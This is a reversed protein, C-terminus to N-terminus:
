PRCNFTLVCYLLVSSAWDNLHFACFHSPIYVCIYIETSSAPDESWSNLSLPRRLNFFYGIACDRRQQSSRSRSHNYPRSCLFTSSVRLETIFFFRKQIRWVPKSAGRALSRGITGNRPALHSIRATIFLLGTCRHASEMQHSILPSLCRRVVVSLAKGVVREDRILARVFHRPLVRARKRRWGETSILM